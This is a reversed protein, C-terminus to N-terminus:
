SNQKSILQNNIPLLLTALILCNFQPDSYFAGSTLSLIFYQVMILGIWYVHNHKIAFRINYICKYICYSFVALGVIGFGLLIDLILSHAYGPYQGNELRAFQSGLIPYDLIQNIFWIYSEQRALTSLDDGSLGEAFRSSLLPSVFSILTIIQGIFLISLIAFIILFLISKRKKITYWMLLIIVLAMFPGRSATKFALFFGLFCFVLNFYFRIKKQSKGEVINYISLISLTIGSMAFSIPDLASNGTNRLGEDLKELSFLISPILIIIYGIFLYKLIYNLDINNFSLYISIMPIFCGAVAILWVKTKDTTLINVDSRIELDYFIRLLVVFWFIFFLLIPLSLKNRININFFIVILSLFLSGARFPITIFQSSEIQNSTFPMLISVFFTYGIIINILNLNSLYFNLKNKNNM